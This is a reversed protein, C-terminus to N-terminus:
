RYGGIPGYDEVARLLVKPVGGLAYQPVLVSERSRRLARFLERKETLVQSESLIARERDAHNHRGRRVCGPTRGAAIMYTWVQDALDHFEVAVVEHDVEYPALFQAM